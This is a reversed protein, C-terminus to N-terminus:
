MEFFPNKFKLNENSTRDFITLRLSQLNRYDITTTIRKLNCFTLMQMKIPISTPKKTVSIRDDVFIM